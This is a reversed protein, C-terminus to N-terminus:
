WKGNSLRGVGLSVGGETRGAAKRGPQLQKTKWQRRGGAEKIKSNDGRTIEIISPLPTFQTRMYGFRVQDEQVQSVSSLALGVNWM